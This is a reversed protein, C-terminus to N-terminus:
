IAQRAPRGAEALKSELRRVVIYYVSGILFALLATSLAIVSDPANIGQAALWSVVTGVLLPVVTRVVSTAIDSM